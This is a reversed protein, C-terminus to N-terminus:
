EEDLLLEEFEIEKFTKPDKISIRARNTSDSRSFLFTKIFNNKIGEPYKNYETFLEDIDEISNKPDECYIMMNFLEYYNEFSKKLTNEFWKQNLKNESVMKAVENKYELPKNEKKYLLSEIDLVIIKIDNKSYITKNIKELISDVEIITEAEKSITFFRVKGNISTLKKSKKNKDFTIWFERNAQTLFFKPNIKQNNIDTAFANVLECRNKDIPFKKVRLKVTESIVDSTDIDTRDYEIKVEQCQVSNALLLLLILLKLVINKM